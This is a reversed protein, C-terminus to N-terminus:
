EANKKKKTPKTSEETESKESDRLQITQGDPTVFAKINVITTNPNAETVLRFGCACKWNDDYEHM